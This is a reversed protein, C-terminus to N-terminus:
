GYPSPWPKPHEGPRRWASYLVLVYSSPQNPRLQLSQSLAPIADAYNGLEMEAIGLNEWIKPDTRHIRTGAVALDRAERHRGHEMLLMCLNSRAPADDPNGRLKDSLEGIGRIIDKDMIVSGPPLPQDATFIPSDVTRRFQRILRDVDPPTKDEFSWASESYTKQIVAYPWYLDLAGRRVAESLLLSTHLQLPEIRDFGAECWVPELEGLVDDRPQLLVIVTYGHLDVVALELAEYASALLADLRQQNGRM